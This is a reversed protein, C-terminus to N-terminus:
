ALGHLDDGFALLEACRTPFAIPDLHGVGDGRLDAPDEVAVERLGRRRRSLRTRQPPSVPFTVGKPEGKRSSAWEDHHPARGDKSARKARVEPHRGPRSGDIACLAIM